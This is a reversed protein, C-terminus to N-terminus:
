GRLCGSDMAMESSKENAFGVFSCCDGFGELREGNREGDRVLDEGFEALVLAGRGYDDVGVELRDHLSNGPSDPLLAGSCRTLASVGTASYRQLASNRAGRLADAFGNLAPKLGSLCDDADEDHLGAAADGRKGGGSALRDAGNEGAGGSADDAGGGAGAAAAEFRMMAKSM